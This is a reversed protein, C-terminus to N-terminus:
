FEIEQIQELDIDETIPVSEMDDVEGAHIGRACLSRYVCFSCLKENETLPFSQRAKIEDVLQELAGWTQCAQAEHIVFIEPRDPYEAYWYMMEIALDGPNSFRDKSRHLLSLYVKTQTREAMWARTPRKHYTKWDYIAVTSDAKVAVMDYKAIMRHRGIRSSLTLETFKSDGTLGPRHSLFNEWWRQLNSTSALLTIKAEPLGIFYQQIMRHFIQGEIQRREKELLPASEV